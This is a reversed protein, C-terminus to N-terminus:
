KAEGMKLCDDLATQFVPNAAADMKAFRGHYRRFRRAAATTWPKDGHREADDGAVVDFQATAYEVYQVRNPSGDERLLEILYAHAGRPLGISQAAVDLRAACGDRWNPPLKIAVDASAPAAWVFLLTLPTLKM